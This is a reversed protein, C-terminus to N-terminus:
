AEESRREEPKIPDQAQPLPRSPCSFPCPYSPCPCLCPCSPCPCLYPCSLCLCSPHSSPHFSLPFSPHSSSTFSEGTSKIEMM